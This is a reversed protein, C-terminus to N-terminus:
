PFFVGGGPQTPAASVPGEWSKRAKPVWWHLLNSLDDDNGTEFSFCTKREHEALFIKLMQNKNVPEHLHSEMGCRIDEFIDFKWIYFFDITSTPDIIMFRLM